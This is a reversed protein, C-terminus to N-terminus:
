EERSRHWDWEWANWWEAEIGRCTEAFASCAICGEGRVLDPDDLPPYRVVLAEAEARAVEQAPIAAPGALEALASRRLRERAEPLLVSDEKDVHEWLLRALETVVAESDAGIELRDVLRRLREHESRLVALPGRDAPVEAHQVLAPFLIEEERAEHREVVWGRLVAVFRLRDDEDAGDRLWRRLAGALDDVLRHEERLEALLRLRDGGHPSRRM